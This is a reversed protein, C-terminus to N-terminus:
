YNSPKLKELTEVSVSPDIFVFNGVIRKEYIFPINSTHWLDTSMKIVRGQKPSVRIVDNFKWWKHETGDKLKPYLRTDGDSDCVYYLYIIGPVEVDLHPKLIGRNKYPNTMNWKIRWLTHTEYEPFPLLTRLLEFDEESQTREGFRYFTNTYQHRQYKEVSHTTRPNYYWPFDSNNLMGSLCIQNAEPVYNDIIEYFSM